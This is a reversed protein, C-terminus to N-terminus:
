SDMNRRIGVSDLMTIQEKTLYKVTRNKGTPKGNLRAKQESLWRSLWVGEVVYDAPIRVHGHTEYYQKLLRFKQAWPDERDWVMGIAELQNKREPTLTRPDHRRIWRGLAFGEEDVYAVPVKINGHTTYYHLARSYAYDWRNAHADRWSMGISELLSIQEQTLPAGAGIGLYIRRQRRLWSGIKLGDQSVYDAPIDLNGFERYYDKCAKYNMEWRYDRSEWVMGLQDLQEIREPTLFSSRSGKARAQRLNALFPGLVIGDETRYRAPIDLNGHEQKYDCMARYYTEWADSSRDGWRMDLADLKKIQSETLKGATKGAYVKRQTDLWSGLAYGEPTIYRRPVNLNGNEERYKKAFQYMLNWGATLTDNLRDFLKLCDRVEDIIQFTENVIQGEKEHSRYQFIAERMEEEIAGISYLNEINMVIDFIVPNKKKGASLARGIQQKFIIPSITPRLLIVGDVNEVHVGENLMDICYLLKLHDSEDKKFEAFSQDTAPDESYATYIHPEPDVKSFWDKSLAAMEQLHTYNACFVIYKGSRNDMHKEFVKDLGEAQELARRLAELYQEAEDRVAKSKTSKLRLSYKELGKQCSFVSLVYKPPALIGRVIAEGLSMESSICGDFLEQAMDRQNDLYRINTASLGLLKAEPFCNMLQRVGAGWQQAGCRHFEDLIIYDPKLEKLDQMQMLMLKAYTLFQVNEPLIEGSTAKLNELQTQFIYESPSLWCIRSEPHDLCLRFAIFSKGTGTPHIIAAKGRERLLNVSAEYAEQNHRFLELAM